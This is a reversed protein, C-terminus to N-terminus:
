NMLIKVDSVKNFAPMRRASGKRARDTPRHRPPWRTKAVSPIEFRLDVIQFRFNAIGFPIHGREKPSAGRDGSPSKSIFEKTLALGRLSLM